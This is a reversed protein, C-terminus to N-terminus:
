HQFVESGAFIQFQNRVRALRPAREIKTKLLYRSRTNALVFTFISRRIDKWTKYCYVLWHQTSKAVNLRQADLFMAFYCLKRSKVVSESRENETEPKNENFRLSVTIRHLSRFSRPFGKSQGYWPTGLM